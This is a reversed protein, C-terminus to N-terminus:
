YIKRTLLIFSYRKQDADDGYINKLLDKLKELSSGTDVRAIFENLDNWALSKVELVVADFRPVGNCDIIYSQGPKFKGTDLRLTTFSRCLLKNNYNYNFSLNKTAKEM